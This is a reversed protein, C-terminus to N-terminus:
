LVKKKKKVGGPSNGLDEILHKGYSEFLVNVLEAQIKARDGKSTNKLAERLSALTHKEPEYSRKSALLPSSLMFSLYFATLFLKSLNKM